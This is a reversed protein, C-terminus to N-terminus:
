VEKYELQYIRTGAQNLELEIIENLRSISLDNLSLWSKPKFGKIVIRVYRKM